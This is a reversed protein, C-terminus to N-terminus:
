TPNKKLLFGTPSRPEVIRKDPKQEFPKVGTQSSYSRYGSRDGLHLRKGVVIGAVAGREM